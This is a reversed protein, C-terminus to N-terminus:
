RFTLRNQLRVRKLMLLVDHFENAKAIALAEDTVKVNYDIFIRITLVDGQEVALEFIEGDRANQDAGFRLLIDVM